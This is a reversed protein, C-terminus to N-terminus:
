ADTTIQILNFQEEEVIHIPLLSSLPIPGRCSSSFITLRSWKIEFAEEGLLIIQMNDPRIYKRAANLVDEKTVGRIRDVCM